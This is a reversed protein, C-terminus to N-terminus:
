ELSRIYKDNSIKSIVKLSTEFISALEDEHILNASVNHAAGIHHQALQKRNMGHAVTLTGGPRLHSM